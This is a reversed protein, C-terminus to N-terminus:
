SVVFLCVWLFGFGKVYVLGLGFWVVLCCFLWVSVIDGCILTHNDNGLCFYIFVFFVFRLSCLCELM